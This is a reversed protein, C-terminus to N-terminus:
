RTPISPRPEAPEASISAEGLYVYQVTVQGMWVGEYFSVWRYGREAFDDVLATIRPSPVWTGFPIELLGTMDVEARYIM